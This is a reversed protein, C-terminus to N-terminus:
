YQSGRVSQLIGKLTLLACHSLPLAESERSPLGPNSNQAATNFGQALKKVRCQELESLQIVSYRAISLPPYTYLCVERMLQLMHSSAKWLLQSQTQNFLKTLSTFHSASQAIRLISYQAIYSSVKKCSSVM